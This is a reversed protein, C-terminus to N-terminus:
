KKKIIRKIIAKLINDGPYRNRTRVIEYRVCYAAAAMKGRVGHALRVKTAVGSWILYLASRKYTATGMEGRSTNASYTLPSYGMARFEKAKGEPLLPMAVGVAWRVAKASDASTGRLLSLAGGMDGAANLLRAIDVVWKLCIRQWVYHKYSHMVLHYAMADPRLIRGGHWETAYDTLRGPLDWGFDRRFLRGHLEIRAGRYEVAGLHADGDSEMPRDSAGSTRGGAALLLKRAEYIRGPEVWLDIDGALRHSVDSYYPSDILAVGKLRVTGIGKLRQEVDRVVGLAHANHAVTEIAERRLLPALRETADWDRYSATLRHLLWGAVGESRAATALSRAGSESLTPLDGGDRAIACLRALLDLTEADTPSLRGSEGSMGDTATGIRM